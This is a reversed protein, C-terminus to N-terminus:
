LVTTRQEYLWGDYRQLMRCCHHAIGQAVRRGQALIDFYGSARVAVRGRHTGAYKGTPVVALVWDGTQFGFHTKQRRRHRFPFGYRDVGAMRGSGRGQASWVAVYASLRTFATPTSKGVCLADFYHEKPLNRAIRQMKTLAGTGTEVPLGTGKLRHLLAWRTANMLAADRLPAQARAQVEPHGYEKATRNGKEQNCTHCALALNSVRDTGGRSKPVIHEVELVPDGSKGSCYACTRHFKELLYERIEYGQLEGQQYEMGSIGPNQLLQTDFKAHEISIATLPALRRIKAVANLTQDVRAERSPPLWGDPRRRNRFRTPRYRTRRNRRARRLARRADLTAKIGPKHRIEGFLVAKAGGAGELVAAMGTVKSGPDLKLRLPQFASATVERDKLRITFPAMRYIVARGRELLLRARKETCPMLPKQHRDLVFVV